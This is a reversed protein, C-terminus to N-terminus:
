VQARTVLTGIKPKSYLSRSSTSAHLNGGATNFDKPTFAALAMLLTIGARKPVYVYIHMCISLYAYVYILMCLPRALYAGSPRSAHACVYIYAYMYILMCLPHSQWSCPVGLFAQERTCMCVCMHIYVYMYILMCLPHTLWWRRSYASSARLTHIYVGIYTYPYAHIGCAAHALHAWSDMFKTYTRVCMYAYSHSYRLPMLSTVGLICSNLTYVYVCMCAYSYSYGLLMLSTLGLICSNQIHVYVCMCAHPLRILLSIVWTHMSKYAHDQICVCTYIYIYIYVHTHVYLCAKFLYIYIYIGLSSIYIYICIYM